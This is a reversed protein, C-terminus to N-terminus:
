AESTEFCTYMEIASGLVDCFDERDLGQFALTMHLSFKGDKHVVTGLYREGSKVVIKKTEYSDGRSGRGYTPRYHTETVEEATMGDPLAAQVASLNSELRAREVRVNEAQALLLDRAAKVRKVLSNTIKPVGNKDTAAYHTVKFGYDALQYSFTVEVRFTVPGYLRWGDGQQYHDVTCVATLGRPLSIVVRKEDMESSLGAEVITRQVEVLIARDVANRVERADADKKEQEAARVLEVRAKEIAANYGMIEDEAKAKAEALARYVASNPGCATANIERITSDALTRKTTLENIREQIQKTSM